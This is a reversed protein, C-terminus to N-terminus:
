HSSLWLKYNNKLSKTGMEITKQIEESQTLEGLVSTPQKLMFTHQHDMKIPWSSQEMNLDLTDILHEDISPVMLSNQRSTSGIKSEYLLPTQAEILDPLSSTTSDLSCSYLAMDPQQETEIDISFVDM